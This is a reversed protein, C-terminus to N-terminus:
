HEQSVLDKRAGCFVQLAEAEVFHLNSPFILCHPPKGFDFQMLESITAAHVIMDPAELRAIGVVLTEPKIVPNPTHHDHHHRAALSILGALAKPITVHQKTEVNVELLVLSHLSAGMNVRLVAYVSEPLAEGMVFPVTITKGFKYSQLGTTGAAASAVSAGHIIRTQIGARHARLRLDVHTTAVMPDGAVLFAVRESKAKSLIKEEAKEEVDERSLIEVPKGVIGALREIGFGPMVSTYLEAFVRDCARAVAQGRLSLGQEDYLGLGIFILEGM